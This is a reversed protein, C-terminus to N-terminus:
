QGPVFVQIMASNSGQRRAALYFRDLEGSFFSTRAGKVTPVRAIEKYHDADQQEFVSIAGEGGSAYIRKRSRDFFVDDCDGRRASLARFSLVTHRARKVKLIELLRVPRQFCALHAMQKPTDGIHAFSSGPAFVVSDGPWRSWAM